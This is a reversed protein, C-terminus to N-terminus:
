YDTYLKLAIMPLRTLTIAANYVEGIGSRRRIVSLPLADNDWMSECRSGRKEGTVM